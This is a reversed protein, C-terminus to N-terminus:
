KRILKKVHKNDLIQLGPRPTQQHSAAKRLRPRRSTRANGQGQNVSTFNSFVPSVQFTNVMPLPGCLLVKIDSAPAPMHTKIMDKSM